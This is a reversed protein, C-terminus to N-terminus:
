AAMEYLSGWSRGGIEPDTPVEVGGLTAKMCRAIMLAGTEAHEVPLSAVVEDHILLRLYPTLGKKDMRILGRGLVDRSSSQIDYNLASYARKRDVYLRRGTMTTIYGYRRAESQLQDSYRKVGPYAADFGAIVMQATAMDIGTQEVVVKPGGGYVRGFNVVKSIKRHKENADPGFAARATMWHLDEGQAFARRMAKDGSRAALVRLEMAAYDVSAIVHGEDAVFCHRVFADGSPLTQAPIGTISMRATRAQMTNISAHCRGHEDANALFAEFWTQRWKGAKKAEKVALALQNGNAALRSLLKDDVKPQGTDTQEFEQHGLYILAEAVQQNSNLNWDDPDEWPLFEAVLEELQLRWYEEELRLREAAAETYERDLLFGNRSIESCIRAIEHEYRILGRASEPVKGALIGKLRYALVPDMGAYMNYGTHDLPVAQWFEDKTVGLQRAMLGVSGKIDEAIQPDIYAGTLKELSHGVGGEKSDRSDVLRSLIMTDTTKAWTDGLPIGLVKEAGQLDFTANHAILGDAVELARRAYYRAKDSREVPLVWSERATGFQALRWRFDRAYVNAGTTETDFGLVPNRKVFEVFGDLDEDREVINILVESGHVRAQLQRITGGEM